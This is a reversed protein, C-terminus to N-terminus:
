GKKRHNGSYGRSADLFEGKGKIRQRKEQRKSGNGSQKGPPDNELPRQSDTKKDPSIQRRSWTELGNKWRIRNDVM